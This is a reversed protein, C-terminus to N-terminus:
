LINFRQLRATERTQTRQILLAYLILVATELTDDDEAVVAEQEHERLDKQLEVLQEVEIKTRTINDSTDFCNNDALANQRQLMEYHREDEIFQNVFEGIDETGHYNQLRELSSGM